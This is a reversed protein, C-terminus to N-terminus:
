GECHEEKCDQVNWVYARIAKAQLSTMDLLVAIAIGWRLDFRRLPPSAELALGAFLPKWYPLKSLTFPSSMAALGFATDSRRGDNIHSDGDGDGM